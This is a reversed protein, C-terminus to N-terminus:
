NKKIEHRAIKQSFVVQKKFAPVIPSLNYRASCPETHRQQKKNNVKEIPLIYKRKELEITMALEIEKNEFTFCMLTAHM